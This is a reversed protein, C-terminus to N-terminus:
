HDDNGNYRRVPEPNRFSRGTGDGRRGTGRIRHLADGFDIERGLSQVFHNFRGAPADGPIASQAM